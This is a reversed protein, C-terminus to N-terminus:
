RVKLYDAVADPHYDALAARIDSQLAPALPRAQGGQGGGGGGSAGSAEALLQLAEALRACGHATRGERLARDALGCQVPGPCSAQSTPAAHAPLPDVAM